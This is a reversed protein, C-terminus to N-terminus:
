VWEGSRLSRVRVQAADKRCGGAASRRRGCGPRHVEAASPLAEATRPVDGDAAAAAAGACPLPVRFSTGKGPESAVRIAGHLSHAIGHVVALGLGRGAAKTTFFPDFVRAQTEPPMGCGTDSVELQVYDGEPLNEPAAGSSDRPVTVCGTTVRIVGDRNGVADSANLVLNMVIQRLQAGRARVPPLDEDLATTLVARKSITVALFGLMEEVAKSVDILEPVDTEKGAYIMLQRVIESGRIAVDRIERLAEDPYSGGELEAMALETQALVGGLLNNFDHAIGSALTGLSEMKQKAVSEEQVRRIETVDQCAGFVRAPAGDEDLLVESVCAVTRLEGDPRAMRFEISGGTKKAICDRVWSEVREVDQPAVFQRTAEYSVERDPPLNAIRYVEDSWSMRNTRLDRTWHGIHALREASKLRAESERLDETAQVQDTIDQTAGTFRVPALQDDPFAEVISRIFRVEGDPRLIRFEVACPADSSLAKGQVESIIGRDKPHVRSLFTQFDPQVEKPLGFIRYMEDSWGISGTAVDLEWSGVKALRQADMLQAQNARLREEVRKQETVDICSGIYGAFEGERYRPTGNDLIWRYEGDARRLRYEMHFSRRADFSASYVALCRDLDAPHIGSAWGDGLEQEMSRGTFDLWPKNFFSCLKDTGAVWIMVPATDALNRFREESERLAAEARKRETVDRFAAAIHLEGGLMFSAFCLSALVEQGGKKKRVSVFDVVRGKAKLEALMKARDAPNAYLGIDVATRGILEERSYGFFEVFADNVDVFRGDAFSTISLADAGNMFTARFKAESDRLADLAQKRETIDEVIGDYFQVIGAEDKVCRASERVFLVTGDQRTWVTELGRIQGQEEIMKRFDSRAYEPEFGSQELNREVLASFSDYGLMRVLAPNAVEIRGDPTTRYIGVTANDFLSRFREENAQLAQESPKGSDAQSDQKDRRVM